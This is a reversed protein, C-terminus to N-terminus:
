EAAESNEAQEQAPLKEAAERMLTALALLEDALLLCSERRLDNVSTWRISDIAAAVHCVSERVTTAAVRELAREASRRMEERIEDAKSM